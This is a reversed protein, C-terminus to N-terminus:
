FMLINEFFFQISYHKKFWSYDVTTQKKENTKKNGM